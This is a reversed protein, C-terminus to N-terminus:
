CIYINRIAVSYLFAPGWFSSNGAQCMLFHKVMYSGACCCCGALRLRGLRSDNIQKITNTNLLANWM